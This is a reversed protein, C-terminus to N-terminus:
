CIKEIGERGRDRGRGRLYFIRAGSDDRDNHAASLYFKEASRPPCLIQCSNQSLPFIFSPRPRRHPPPPPSSPFPPSKSRSLSLLSYIPLYDCDAGFKLTPNFIGSSNSILSLSLTPTPSSLFPANKQLCPPHQTQIPEMGGSRGVFQNM